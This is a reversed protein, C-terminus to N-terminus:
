RGRIVRPRPPHFGHISNVTNVTREGFTEKVATDILCACNVLRLGFRSCALSPSMALVQPTQSNWREAFDPCIGRTSRDDLM